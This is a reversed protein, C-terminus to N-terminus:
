KGVPVRRRLEDFFNFLFTVEHASRQAEPTDVPVLVAVRKGDPALDLDRGGLDEIWVRPKEAVFSGGNVSYNVGMLQDGSIALYFVERGNRSWFPKGGGGSHSIQWKGGLGYAPPPFSQVYEEYKGSENSTYALWHGDPSFAPYNDNSKSKLFQEPKGVKLQEDREDLALAWIQGNGSSWNMYALWKGDRTISYPEQGDHGQTLPHLQGAGDARVWFMGGTFTGFVIYRGDPTWIPSRYDSGGFTLRTMADRQPDYVWVDTNAGETLVFSLRKGDPSLRLYSYAGPKARLPEKKGVGDVWQIARVGPGAVGSGRRYVLTGTEASCVDAVGTTPDYALDDLIPVATGTTELRGVDFPIAFLTGQVTYVLHGTSLYRPSTGGRVLTKRRRDAFSFVDISASNADLARAVFLVAKGGPLVRPDDFGVEGPTQDLVRTPVTGSAGVRVLGNNVSFIINGDAGWSGKGAVSPLDALPVVAGGEVSVKNLKNAYFTSFGVWHGDPSFFPNTAGETGRLENAKPQDLRRAYLRGYTQGSVFVLRTGDPSLTLNSRDSDPYRLYVEPGLDVDLRVLALTEGDLRFDV